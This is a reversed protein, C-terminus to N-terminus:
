QDEKETLVQSALIIAEQYESHIKSMNVLGIIDADTLLKERRQKKAPSDLLAQLYTSKM